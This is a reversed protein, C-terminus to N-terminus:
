RPREWEFCWLFILFTCGAFSGVVGDAAWKRAGLESLSNAGLVEAFTAGQAGMGGSFAWAPVFATVALSIVTHSSTRQLFMVAVSRIDRGGAGDLILVRRSFGKTLLSFGSFSLLKLLFAPAPAVGMSRTGGEAKGGSKQEM